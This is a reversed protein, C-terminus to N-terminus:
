TVTYCRSGSTAAMKLCACDCRANSARTFQYIFRLRAWERSTQGWGPFIRGAMKKRLPPHSHLILLFFNFLCFIVKERGTGPAIPGSYLDSGRVSEGACTNRWRLWKGPPPPPPCPPCVRPITDVASSPSSWPSVQRGQAEDKLDGIFASLWVNIDLHLSVHLLKRRFSASTGQLGDRLAEKSWRPCQAVGSPPQSCSLRPLPGPGGRDLAASRAKYGETAQIDRWKKCLLSATTLVEGGRGQRSGTQRHSWLQSATPM